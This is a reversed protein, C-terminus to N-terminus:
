FLDATVRFVSNVSIKIKHLIIKRATFKVRLEFSDKKIYKAIDMDDYVNLELETGINSPIDFRDAIKIEDLNKAKLFVEINKIAGLEQDIPDKSVIILEKLKATNLLDTKSNKASLESDINTSIPPIPISIPLNIGIISPITVDTNYDINFAIREILGCNFTILTLTLIFIGLYKKM